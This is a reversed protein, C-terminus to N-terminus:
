DDLRLLRGAPEVYRHGERLAGDLLDPLGALVVLAAGLWLRGSGIAVGAGVGVLMGLITLHDPTLGTKRLM